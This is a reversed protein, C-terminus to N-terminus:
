TQRHGGAATRPDGIYQAFALTSAFGILAVVLAADFFIDTRLRIALLVVLAVVHMALTDGALVRDALHPGRLLRYLCLLMGATVTAFGIRVVWLLLPWADSTNLQPAPEHQGPTALADAAAAALMSWDLISDLLAM